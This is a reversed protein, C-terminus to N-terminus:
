HCIYLCKRTSPMSGDMAGDKTRSVVRGHDAAGARGGGIPQSGSGLGRCCVLSRSICPNQSLISMIYNFM